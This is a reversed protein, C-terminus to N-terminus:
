RTNISFPKCSAAIKCTWLIIPNQKDLGDSGFKSALNFYRTVGAWFLAGFHIQTHAHTNATINIRSYTARLAM